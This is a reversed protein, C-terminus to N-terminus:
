LSPEDPAGLRTIIAARTLDRLRVIDRWDRTAATIPADLTVTITGPRPRWTDAPLVERTGHITVPVVPCGAEASAPWEM